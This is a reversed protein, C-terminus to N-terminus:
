TRNIWDMIEYAKKDPVYCWSRLDVTRVPLVDHLDNMHRKERYSETM